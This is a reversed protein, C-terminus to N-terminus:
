ATDEFDEVTLRRAVLLKGIHTSSYGMGKRRISFLAKLMPIPSQQFNNPVNAAPPRHEPRIFGDSQIEFTGQDKLDATYIGLFRCLKVYASEFPSVIVLVPTDSIANSSLIWNVPRIYSDTQDRASVTTAFDRSAFVDQSWPQCESFAASTKTLTDFAATFACSGDPIHGTRIFYRIDEDIRHTAAPVRPPRQVEREREIEHVVEREQEEDLRNDPSIGLGLSSCRELLEKDLLTQSAINDMPAPAYLKELHKAEPQLWSRALETPTIDDSLFSLLPGHRSKYDMGYQLWQPARRQIDSCTETMAWVLIDSVNINQSGRKNVERISRDVEPPAFFMVTHGHGLKRMRMCGQVLRDKTVKPGLTVAARFGHPLKLDTGRTHEDDLYFVCQDLQQAFSSTSFPEIVHDRTCVVLEDHKNFYVAAQANKNIKLWEKAVEDNELDLVQAGVDLLVRIEPLQEAIVNLLEEVGRGAADSNYRDNEEQLLYSLVRANTSRQHALEHQAINTPLLYRFDNTGSFGTTPLGSSKQEALDWASCSLKSPFEKAEQPFAIQSLFFDIVAKNHGFLPVLCTTFQETSEMNIGRLHRLNEPLSDLSLGKIWTEYELTPNDQKLLQQFCLAVQKETLGEYYYSLCTLEVAIDPHGFETPSFTRWSPLFPLIKWSNVRTTLLAFTTNDEVVTTSLIGNDTSEHLNLVMRSILTASIIGTFTALSGRIVVSSSFYTLINPIGILTM